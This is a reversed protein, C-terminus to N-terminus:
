RDPILHLVRLYLVRCRNRTLAARVRIRLNFMLPHSELGSRLLMQAPNRGRETSYVDDTHVHLNCRPVGPSWKIGGNCAVVLQVGGQLERVTARVGEDEREDSRYTAMDCGGGM